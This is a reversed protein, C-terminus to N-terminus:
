YLLVHILSAKEPERFFGRKGTSITPKGLAGNCAAPMETTWKSMLSDCIEENHYGLKDKFTLLADM